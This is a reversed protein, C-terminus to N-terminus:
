ARFVPALEAEDPLPFASVALAHGLTVKLHARIAPLWSPDIPLDLAASAAQIFSDLTREDIDAM